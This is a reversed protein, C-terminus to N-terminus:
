PGINRNSSRGGYITPTTVACKRSHRARKTIMIGADNTREQNGNTSEADTRDNGTALAFSELTKLCFDSRM